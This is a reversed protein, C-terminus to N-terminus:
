GRYEGVFLDGKLGHNKDTLIKSSEDQLIIDVSRHYIEHQVPVCRYVQVTAGSKEALDVAEALDQKNTFYEIGDDANRDYTSQIVYIEKM